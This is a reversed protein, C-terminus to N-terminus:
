NKGKGKGIKEDRAAIAIDRLKAATAPGTQEVLGRFHGGPIDLLKLPEDFERLEGADMVLIKDSEIITNLRHAITLVTKDSFNDKIAQQILADTAMDIAATAEDLVLIKTNSLVARAICFLQRQGLSFNKGNEIVATMLGKPFDRIKQGLHVADLAKWIQEDTSMSFPDLNTRITGVFLVPEQPIIAIKTRLDRLGLTSVDIGDISIKGKHAEVIRLLSILLTSKGSGTRGVIGIKEKPNITFSVNKLVAVGFKHYKLVLNSFEITGTQPWAADTVAGPIHAPAESPVNNGYYVIQGVSTIQAQVDGVMRVTWQLFVLMQLANSLALGATTAMGPEDRYIITLLTCFYVMLSAIIDLYLAIWSKAMLSGLLYKHNDDIKVLTALDFRDEAHYARISFLGELSATFHSIVAPKSTAEANKLKTEVASAFYALGAGIIALGIVPIFNMPVVVATLIMAGLALPAYQLAQMAANPMSDDINLQHKSFASLIRGLPTTDFFSMPAAMVAGFMKKHLLTSKNTTAKAWLMGRTYVGSAFVVTMIAYVGIYVSDSFGGTKPVWLKLWYDSGIRVGHVLFFFCVISWTIAAGSGSRAYKGYSGKSAEFSRDEQVLAGKPRDEADDVDAISHITLENKRIIEAIDHGMSAGNADRIVSLQNREIISSITKENLEAFDKRVTLQSRDTISMQSMEMTLGESSSQHNLDESSDFQLTPQQAAGKSSATAAPNPPAIFDEAEVDDEGSVVHNNIMHAFDPQTAMLTEYSGQMEIKGNKMMVVHDVESLYQLQHLAVVITKGNGQLHTKFCEQFIHRGVAQDVASLPDDLLITDADNYVARALSTRQKQGGSLNSGREAIETQDAAVLLTLDRTLASVRVVEDFKAQNFESGFTINDRLTENLLWAEQPVYSTTGYIQMKPGSVQRIQGLLAALLSSKGSGVDGIVAVIQGRKVHLDINSITPGEKEEGDWRFDSNQIHIATPNEPTPELPALEEVEAGVLFRSIREFSIVAANTSGVAMPLMLFPYRLTNFVSLTTFSVSATLPRGQYVVFVSLSTLAVFVPIAFVIMFNLAKLYMNKKILAMEKARIEDLRDSFPQEWSYFKILKIATLIESMLHVRNTTVETSETSLRSSVGGIYWQVPLLLLVFGLAPLAAWQIEIFALILILTAEVFASWLFHFNVIAEQVRAVDTSLLNVVEGAGGRIRSLRLCKRYILGTLGGKVQVGARYCLGYLQHIAVSSFFAAGFMAVALGHGMEMSTNADPNKKAYEQLYVLVLKLLWWAALWTFLGWALKYLGILIYSLGYASRLARYISPKTPNAQKEKNWAAQLKETNFTAQDPANLKLNLKRVDASRAKTALPWVWLYLWQSIFNSPALRYEKATQAYSRPM